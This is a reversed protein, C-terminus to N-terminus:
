QQQGKGEKSTQQTSLQSRSGSGKGRLMSSTAKSFVSDLTSSSNNLNRGNKDTIVCKSALDEELVLNSKRISDEMPNTSKMLKSKSDTQNVFNQLSATSSSNSLIQSQLGSPTANIDDEDEQNDDEQQYIFDEDEGDEDEDFDDDQEEFYEEEEEEEDSGVAGGEEAGEIGAEEEGDEEAMDETEKEGEEEQKDRKELDSKELSAGGETNKDKKEGALSFVSKKSPNFKRRKWKHEPCFSKCTGALWTDLSKFIYQESHFSKPQFKYHDFVQVKGKNWRAGITKCGDGAWIEVHTMHHKQQRSKPNPYIGSIFVLDGAKMDEEREITIPLTDYMYAQNWPGIRFGFDKRLDLMVQRVLGCCDLFRKSYYEEDDPTWYRKAYPTGFYKKAQAMFKTRLRQMQIPNRQKKKRKRKMKKQNKIEKEM